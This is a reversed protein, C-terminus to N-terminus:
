PCAAVAWGCHMRDAADSSIGAAVPIEAPFHKKFTRRSDAPIEAPIKNSGFPFKAPTNRSYRSLASTM